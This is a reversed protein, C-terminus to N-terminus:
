SQRPPSLTRHSYITQRNFMQLNIRKLIDVYICGDCKVVAVAFVVTLDVCVATLSYVFYEEHEGELAGFNRSSIISVLSVFLRKFSFNVFFYHRIELPIFKFFFARAVFFYM